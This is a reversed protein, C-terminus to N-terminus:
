YSCLFDALVSEVICAHVCVHMCARMCVCVCVCVCLWNVAIQIEDPVVRILWCRRDLVAQIM